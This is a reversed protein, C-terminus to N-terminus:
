LGRVQAQKQLWNIAFLLVFSAVLMVCAIATAGAYDYQELKTVIVLPVVESLQPINGAIFIVSGYEGLARAFAMAFGTALSTRLGPLLVRFFAQARTAGLSMAAEELEKEMDALVPQVTRVVFPLGVFILAVLIGAPTFAVQIGLELLPKGVWGQPGYLAALAIGAVATPLAFPVDVLADLLQRGWFRYRVLVWAVVAGFVCNILAALASLGFSLGYAHLVRPSAVAQLFQEPSLTATRVFLGSLPVVVVLLLAALTFGLTVGFGPIVSPQKFVMARM